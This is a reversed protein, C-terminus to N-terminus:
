NEVAQIPGEKEEREDSTGRKRRKGRMAPQTSSALRAPAHEEDEGSADGAGVVPAGPAGPCTSISDPATSRSDSAAAARPLERKRPEDM